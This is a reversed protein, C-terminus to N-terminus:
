KLGRAAAHYRAGAYEIQETTSGSIKLGFRRATLRHHSRKPGTTQLAVVKPQEEQPTEGHSSILPTVTVSQASAPIETDLFIEQLTMYVGPDLDLGTSFHHQIATGADDDGLVQYVQGGVEGFLMAGSVTSFEGLELDQDGLNGPVSILPVSAELETKIGASFYHASYRAAHVAMDPFSIMVAYNIDDVGVPHFFFWLENHYSDWVGWAREVKDRDMAKWVAAQIHEGLSMANVGDFRYVAGSPSLYCHSGDSIPVVALPSCPGPISAVAIEYRFPAILEEQAFGNWISTEKYVVHALNGREQLTVIDGPTDYLNADLETGWGANFNGLESCKINYGSALILRKASVCMARPASPPTGSVDVYDHALAVEGDWAKPTNVGNCGIVWTNGSTPFTRFVIQGGTGGTLVNTGTIDVWQGTTKNYRHWGVSTGMVLRYDEDEHNYQIFGMPRENIDQAFATLGERTKFRGYRNFWNVGDILGDPPVELENLHKLLGKSPRPWRFPQSISPM